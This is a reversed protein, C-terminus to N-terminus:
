IDHGIMPANQWAPSDEPSRPDTRRIIKQKQIKIKECAAAWKQFRGGGTNNGSISRSTM